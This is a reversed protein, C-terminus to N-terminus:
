PGAVLGAHIELSFISYQLQTQLKLKLVPVWEQGTISIRVTKM